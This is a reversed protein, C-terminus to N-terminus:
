RGHTAVVGPVGPMVGLKGAAEQIYIQDEGAVSSFVSAKLFNNLTLCNIASSLSLDPKRRVEAEM